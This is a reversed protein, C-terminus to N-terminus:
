CCGCVCQGLSSGDSVNIVVELIEIGGEIVVEMMMKMDAITVEEV